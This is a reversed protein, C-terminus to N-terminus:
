ITRGRFYIQKGKEIAKLARKAQKYQDYPFGHYPLAERVKRNLHGYLKEEHVPNIKELISDICKEVKMSVRRERVFKSLGQEIYSIAEDRTIYGKEIDGPVYDIKIIEGNAIERLMYVAYEKWHTDGEINM